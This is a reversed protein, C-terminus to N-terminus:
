SRIEALANMMESKAGVVRVIRKGMKKVFEVAQHGTQGMSFYVTDAWAAKSELSDFQIQGKEAFWFRLHLEPFTSLFIPHQDPRFGCILIKPKKHSAETLRPEPDHKSHAVLSSTIGEPKPGPLEERLVERILNKFWEKLIDEIGARGAALPIEYGLMAGPPRENDVEKVTKPPPPLEAGAGSLEKLRQAIRAVSVLGNALNRWRERPLVKQQIKPMALHMPKGSKDHLFAHALSDVEQESWKVLPKSMPGKARSMSKEKTFHARIPISGVYDMRNRRAGLARRARLARM